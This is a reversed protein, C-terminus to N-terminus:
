DLAWYSELDKKWELNYPVALGAEILGDIDFLNKALLAKTKPSLLKCDKSETVWYLELRLTEPMDHESLLDKELECLPRLLPKYQQEIIFDINMRTVSFLVDEALQVLLGPRKHDEYFPFKVLHEAQLIM